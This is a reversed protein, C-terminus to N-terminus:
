LAISRTAVEGSLLPAWFIAHTVGVVVFSLLVAVAFHDMVVRAVFCAPHYFGDNVELKTLDWDERTYLIFVVYDAVEPM